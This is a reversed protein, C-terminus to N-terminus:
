TVSWDCPHLQDTFKERALQMGTESHSLPPGRLSGGDSRESKDTFKERALQM